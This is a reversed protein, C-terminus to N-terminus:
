RPDRDYQIERFAEKWFVSLENRFCTDEPDVAYAFVSVRRGVGLHFDYRRREVFQLWVVEETRLATPLWAFVRIWEDERYKKKAAELKAKQKRIWDEKTLGYKM